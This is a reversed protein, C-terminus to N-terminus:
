SLQATLYLVGADPACYLACTVLLFVCHPKVNVCCLVSHFFQSLFCENYLSLDPVPIIAYIPHAAFCIMCLVNKVRRRVKSAKSICESNKAMATAVRHLGAAIVRSFTKCAELKAENGDKSERSSVQMHLECSSAIIAAVHICPQQQLWM